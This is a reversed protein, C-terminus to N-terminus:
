GIVPVQTASVMSINWFHKTSFFPVMKDKRSYRCPFFWDNSNDDYDHDDYVLIFTRTSTIKKLTPMFNLKAITILTKM